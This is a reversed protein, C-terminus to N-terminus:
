DLVDRKYYMWNVCITITVGYWALSCYDFHLQVFVKYITNLTSADLFVKLRRLLALKGFVKRMVNNVQDHWKLEKDVIVGLCKYNDVNELVNNYM